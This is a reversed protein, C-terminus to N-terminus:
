NLELEPAEPCLEYFLKVADLNLAVAKKLYLVSATVNGTKFLAVAIFLEVYELTKDLDYASMYYRLATKYEANDMYINAIAMLTDPQNADLSISKLYALLANETDDLGILAEALYVWADASSDQLQIAKRIYELSEQFSEKELLCVGIGTLADYNEAQEELSKKYHVIAEDYNELKEYCEGIFLDVQWLDVASKGYEIYSKIADDYEGLQFHSHAKQLCSLTDNENIALAFDYAQIAEKFNQQVFYIQGMNFWAESTFSDIDIIRNYTEIAKDNEALQEYSFALEFMLDVNQANYKDGRKLLSLATEFDLQGIYIYALDLCVNDQDDLESDLVSQTLFRAEKNRGIRLYAEIKLLVVEYDGSEGVSDLIRIAKQTDGVVLYIKARKIKLAASAPHLKLGFEIAKSGDKTRGKRLYYDVIVELEEVDFYGAGNGQLFQEYRQVINNSEDDVPYSIKRSMSETKQLFLTKFM